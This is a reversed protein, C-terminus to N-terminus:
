AAIRSKATGGEELSPDTIAQILPFLERAAYRKLCRM